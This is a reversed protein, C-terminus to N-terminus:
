VPATIFVTALVAAGAFSYLILEISFGVAFSTNRFDSSMQQEPGTSAIVFTAHRLEDLYTEIFFQEQLETVRGLKALHRRALRAIEHDRNTGKTM